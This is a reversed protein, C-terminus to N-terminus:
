FYHMFPPQSGRHSDELVWKAGVRDNADEVWRKIYSLVKKFNEDNADAMKVMQCHDAHLAEEAEGVITASRRPM